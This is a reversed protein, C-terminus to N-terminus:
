EFEAIVQFGWMELPSLKGDLGKIIWHVLETRGRFRFRTEWTHCCFSVTYKKSLSCDLRVIWVLGCMMILCGANRGLRVLNTATTWQNSSGQCKGKVFNCDIWASTKVHAPFKGAFFHELRRRSTSNVCAYRLPKGYVYTHVKLLAKGSSFLLKCCKCFHLEM